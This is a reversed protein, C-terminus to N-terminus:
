SSVRGIVTAALQAITPSSSLPTTTFGAITILVKAVPVNDDVLLNGQKDTKMGKTDSGDEAIKGMISKAEKDIDESTYDGSYNFPSFEKISHQEKDHLYSDYGSINDYKGQKKNEETNKLYSVWSNYSNELGIRTPDQQFDRRIRSLKLNATNTDNKLFDNAIDDLRQNYNSLLEDAVGKRHPDYKVSLINKTDEINALTADRHQQKMAGMQIIENLPLPVVQSVYQSPEILTNFANPM